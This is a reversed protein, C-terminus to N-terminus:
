WTHYSPPEGISWFLHNVRPKGGRPASRSLCARYPRKGEVLGHQLEGPPTGMRSWFIVVVIDCELPKTMGLEIAKQPSLSAPLRTDAMTVGGSTM